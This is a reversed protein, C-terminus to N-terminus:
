KGDEEVQPLQRMVPALKAAMERVGDMSEELISDHETSSFQASLALYDISNLVNAMNRRSKKVRAMEYCHMFIAGEYLSMEVGTINEFIKCARDLVDEEGGFLESRSRLLTASQALIDKHNM